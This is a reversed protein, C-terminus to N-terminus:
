ATGTASDKSDPTNPAGSPAGRRDLGDNGQLIGLSRMEQENAPNQVFGLFSAPDNHFRSRINAPLGDFQEQASKVLFIAQQFDQASIDDYRGSQATAHRIFGTRQYNRLIYNMDCEDKHSQETLGPGCDIGVKVTPRYAKRITLVEDHDRM